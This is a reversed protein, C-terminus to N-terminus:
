RAFAWFDLFIGTKGLFDEGTKGAPPPPQRINWFGRALRAMNKYLVPVFMIVM